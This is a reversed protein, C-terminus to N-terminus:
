PTWHCDVIAVDHAHSEIWRFVIRWQGNVRISHRGARNGPKWAAGEKRVARARTPATPVAPRPDRQWPSRAGCWAGARRPARGDRGGAGWGAMAGFIPCKGDGAASGRGVGAGGGGGAGLLGDM